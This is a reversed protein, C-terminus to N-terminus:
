EAAGSRNGYRVRDSNRCFESLIGFGAMIVMIVRLSRRHELTLTKPGYELVSRHAHPGDLEAQRDAQGVKEKQSESVRKQVGEKPSGWGQKPQTVVKSKFHRETTIGGHFGESNNCSEGQEQCSGLKQDPRSSSWESKM